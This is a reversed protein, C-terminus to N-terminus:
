FVPAKNILMDKLKFESLVRGGQIPGFDPAEFEVVFSKDSPMIVPRGDATRPFDIEISGGAGQETRIALPSYRGTSASLFIKQKYSESQTQWYAALERGLALASTSYLVRVLIRDEFGTGALLTSHRAEEAQRRDVPLRLFAPDLQMRRLAAQRLPLASWIQTVYSIQPVQDRGPLPSPQGAELIFVATFARAKAWPSEELLKSCERANWQTYDKKSWFGEARVTAALVPLLLIAAVHRRM